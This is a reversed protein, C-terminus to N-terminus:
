NKKEALLDRIEVLLETETAADAEPEKDADMRERLKNVPLVLAFYVVAAVLVFGVLQTLFPGVPVGGPMWDDFNPPGGLVMSILSLVINTFAEVVSNFAAGMIFAVALEILNGRMIFDKFGRM